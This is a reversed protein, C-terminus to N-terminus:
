AFAVNRFYEKLALTQGYADHLAHHQNDDQVVKQSGSIDLLTRLDRTQWFRWPPAGLGTKEYAVAMLVCDFDDGNGWVKECDGYWASFEELAQKIDIRDNGAGFAEDRIKSDQNEWWMLTQPDSTFGYTELSDLSIRVYFKECKDIMPLDVARNFKIAGITCIGSGPSTGTTEIDLM